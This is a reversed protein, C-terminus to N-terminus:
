WHTLPSLAVKRERSGEEAGSRTGVVVPGSFPSASLWLVLAPLCLTREMSELECATPAETEKGTFHSFM